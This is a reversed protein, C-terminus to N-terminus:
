HFVKNQKEACIHPQAIKHVALTGFFLGGAFLEARRRQGGVGCEGKIQRYVALMGFGDGGM